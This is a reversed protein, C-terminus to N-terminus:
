VTPYRDWSGSNSSDFSGSLHNFFSGLLNDIDELLVLLDVHLEHILFNQVIWLFHLLEHVTLGRHLVSNIGQICPFELVLNLM